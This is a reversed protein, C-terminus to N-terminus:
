KSTILSVTTHTLAAIILPLEITSVAPCPPHIPCRPILHGDSGCYLCLHNQIRCEREACSLHFSDVQMPEPAPPTVSTAAPPSQAAPQDLTCANLHQSICILKLLFSELGTVNDYIAMHHRLETNLSRSYATVLATQNWASTAAETCFRLACTIDNM